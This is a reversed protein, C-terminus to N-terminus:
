RTRTQNLIIYTNLVLLATSLLPLILQLSNQGSTLNGYKRLSLPEVYVIDNPQLYFLDSNILSGDTVDIDIVKNKGNEKRIIRINKRNAIDKFDGAISIVELISVNSQLFSYRGPKNVEGIINIKFEALNVTLNFDKFYKKFETELLKNIEIISQGGILVQHVVPLHIYGMADVIYGSYYMPTGSSGSSAMQLMQSASTFASNVKEDNTTFRIYIVDGAQIKYKNLAQIGFNNTDKDSVKKQMNQVLVFKKNSVCSGLFGIGIILFLLKIRNKM